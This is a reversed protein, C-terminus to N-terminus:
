YDGEKVQFCTLGLERWMKVVRERDEFIGKVDFDKKIYKEYIEQKVFYDASKDGSWRMFLHDYQVGHKELWAVTKSRYKNDRGTLLIIQYEQELSRLINLVDPYVKDQTCDSNFADWDKKFPIGLLHDEDSQVVHHLRGTNDSLTGDIDFIFAELKTGM